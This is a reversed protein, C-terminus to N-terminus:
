SVALYLLSDAARGGAKDSQYNQLFWKAAERPNGEDLYARGLLNRGWSARWHSPYKDLFLKLQQQSEPYFKADWLRFGYSYEDDAPDDTQPKEIARVAAVRAADPAPTTAAPAPAPAASAGGSMTDLNAQPASTPAPAAAATAPTAAVPTAVATAPEATATQPAIGAATELQAIRNSNQEVQGTLRALQAEMADLRTLIDTVATTSAPSGSAGTTTSGSSIEPEFFREDGGPFVKRQLARVEAEIKRIRTEALTDQAFGPVAPVAVAAAAMALVIAKAKGKRGENMIM